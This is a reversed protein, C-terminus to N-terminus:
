VFRRDDEPEADPYDVEAFRTELEAFRVFEGDFKLLVRGTNGERGKAVLCERDTKKDDPVHLLLVVSADHELEGSERLSALTPRATQGTAPRSLSSLCVVPIKRRMAIDKLAQSVHEVQLRRDRIERPARILQLYDVLLYDPPEPMAELAAHVDLMSVASDSLWIPLPRLKACITELVAEDARGLKLESARVSGVQAVMRRALASVPMERSVFLVRKGAVAAQHAFMLALATKGVAPRAGIYVLEGPGFGGILFTNLGPFPTKVYQREGQAMEARMSDLATAIHEVLPRNAAEGEPEDVVEGAKKRVSDVTQMVEREAM